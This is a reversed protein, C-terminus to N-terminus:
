AFLEGQAPPPPATQATKWASKIVAADFVGNPRLPTAGLATLEEARAPSKPCPEVLVPSGHSLAVRGTEAAGHVSRPEIVCVLRSLAAIASNRTVAAHTEWPALPSFESIFLTQDAYDQARLEGVGHPLAVVAKGGAGWAGLQASYDAGDANGSVLVAGMAAITRGADRAISEGLASVRRAGVVAAAPMSLLSMDGITFLIPPAQLGLRETLVGPYSASDALHFGCDMQQCLGLQREARSLERPTVELFIRVADEEAGHALRVLEWRDMRALMELSHGARRALGRMRNATVRGANERRLMALVWAAERISNDSKERTVPHFADKTRSLGPWPNGSQIVPM